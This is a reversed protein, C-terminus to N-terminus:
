PGLDGLGSAPRRRDHGAAVPALGEDACDVLKRLDIAAREPGDPELLLRAVLDRLLEVDFRVREGDLQPASHFQEALLEVLVEESVSRRSLFGIGLRGVVFFAALLVAFAFGAALAAGLDFFVALGGGGGAFPLAPLPATSAGGPYSTLVASMALKAVLLRIVRNRRSFRWSSTQCAAGTPPRPRETAAIAQWM